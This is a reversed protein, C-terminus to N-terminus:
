VIRVPLVRVRARRRFHGRLDFTFKTKGPAVFSNGLRFRIDDTSSSLLLLLPLVKLVYRIVAAINVTLM